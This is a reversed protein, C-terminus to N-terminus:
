QRAYGLAAAVKETRAADERLFRTFEEPNMAGAEAADNRFRQKVADSAL